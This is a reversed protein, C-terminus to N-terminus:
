LSSIPLLNLKLRKVSSSDETADVDVLDEDEAEAEATTDVTRKISLYKQKKKSIAPSRRKIVAHNEEKTVKRHCPKCLLITKALEADITAKSCYSSRLVSLAYKKTSPDVHHLQMYMLLEPDALEGCTACKGIELKKSDVYSRNYAVRAVMRAPIKYKKEGTRYPKWLLENEERTETDHCKSCLFRGKKVEEKMSLCSLAYLSTLKGSSNRYKEERNYHAFELKNLDQEKCNACGGSNVRFENYLRKKEEAERNGRVRNKAMACDYHLNLKRKGDPYRDEEKLDKQCFSCKLGGNLINKEETSRKIHCAPCLLFGKKFEEKMLSPGLRWIQIKRGGKSVYQDTPNRYVFRLVQIDDRSGCANCGESNFKLEKKVEANLKKKNLDYQRTAKRACEIHYRGRFNVSHNAEEPLLTLKCGLCTTSM